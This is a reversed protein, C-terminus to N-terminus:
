QEYSIGKKCFRIPMQNHLLATQVFPRRKKMPELTTTVQIPSPDQTKLHNNATIPGPAQFYRILLESVRRNDIGPAKMQEPSKGMMDRVGQMATIISGSGILLIHLNAVDIYCGKAM